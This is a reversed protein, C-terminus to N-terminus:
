RLLNKLKRSQFIKINTKQKSIKGYTLDKEITKQMKIWKQDYLENSTEYFYNNIKAYKELCFPQNLKEDLSRRDLFELYQVRIPNIKIPLRYNTHIDISHLKLDSQSNSNSQRTIKSKQSIQSKTDSIAKESKNIQSESEKYNSRKIIKNPNQEPKQFTPVKTGIVAEPYNQLFKEIGGSLLYVNEFGKEAFLTASPIGNKEDFHYIIILKGVQNKFRFIQQTLKDQRLLPAPFNIAEKIHYMQFEDQDRLDILLFESQDTLGLQETAYTIASVQSVETFRTKQSYQSQADFQKLQDQEQQDIINHISEQAPEESILKFITSCKIRKFIESRKKAITANSIVEIDRITPGTNLTQKVYDYKKNRPVKKDLPNGKGKIYGIPLKDM